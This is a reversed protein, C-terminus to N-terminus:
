GEFSKRRKGILTYEDDTDAEAKGANSCFGRETEWTRPRIM